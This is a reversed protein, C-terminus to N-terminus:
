LRPPISALASVDKTYDMLEEFDVSWGEVECACDRM